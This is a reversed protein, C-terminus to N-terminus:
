FQTPPTLTNTAQSISEPASPLHLSEGRCLYWSKSKPMRTFHQVISCFCQAGESQSRLLRQCDDALSLSEDRRTDSCWCKSFGRLKLGRKPVLPVHHSHGDKCRRCPSTIFSADALCLCLIKATKHEALHRVRLGRPEDNFAVFTCM